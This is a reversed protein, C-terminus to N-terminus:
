RVLHQIVRLLVIGLAFSVLSTLCGCGNSHQPADAEVTQEFQEAEIQREAEIFKSDM